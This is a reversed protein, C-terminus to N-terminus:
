SGTGKFVAFITRTLIKIDLTFSWNDIYELDLKMWRDFDIDERAVVEHICTIGPRLSLRRRQWREYQAVESPIPPRPGVLSMDGKFVNILQPLEDLSVKRLFRGVKTIRPDNRIKFVPGERENLSMLEELKEEAGVVMTRFKYIEFTRGHLGCRMQKFFVPGKSTMKIAIAIVLFLPALLILCSASVIFDILRKLFLSTENLPITDFTLLPWDEIEELSPKAIDTDFFDVAINSRVGVKECVKICDRVYPMLSMPLIFVVDDVVNEDLIRALDKFSGIVKKNAIEMGVKDERDVFGLIKLGWHPNDNVMQAFNEARKGSGAILLMRYNYGHRRISHLVALVALKEITLFCVISIFLIVVFARSLLELKLLFAIASFILTALISGDFINWFLDIFKKKRMSHYAGFHKLCVIWLPVVIAMTWAYTQFSFGKQISILAPLNLYELKVRLIHAFLFAIGVVICDLIIAIRSILQQQEKLM